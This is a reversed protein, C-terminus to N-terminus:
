WRRCASDKSTGQEVTLNADVAVLSQKTIKPLFVILNVIAQLHHWREAVPPRSLRQEFPLLPARQRGEAAHWLAQLLM